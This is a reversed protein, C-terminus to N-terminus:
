VQRYNILQTARGHPHWLRDELLRSEREYKVTGPHCMLEVSTIADPLRGTVKPFVSLSTFYDTTRSALVYRVAFNWARKRIFQGFPVTHDYLNMSLRVRRIGHMHQLAKLIGFLGPITHIHHHSDIHSLPVGAKRLGLVQGSLEHLIARRLGRTLRVSRIADQVFEGHSDLLPMLGAAGTVPRFATLNLHVGFSCEPFSALRRVADKICPGNALLTASTILRKRMLLFIADNVAEEAGLDDANVIVNLPANM